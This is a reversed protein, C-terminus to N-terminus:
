RKEKGASSLRHILGPYYPIHSIQVIYQPSIMRIGLCGWPGLFRRAKGGTSQALRDGPDIGTFQFIGKGQYSRRPMVGFLGPCHAKTYKIIHCYAGPICLFIEPKISDEDSIPVEMVAISGLM